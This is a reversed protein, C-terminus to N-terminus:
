NKQASENETYDVIKKANFAKIDFDLVSEINQIYDIHYFCADRNNMYLSTTSTTSINNTRSIRLGFEKNEAKTGSHFEIVTKQSIHKQADLWQKFWGHRELTMQPTYLTVSSWINPLEPHHEKVHVSQGDWNIERLRGQEWLILTFNEIGNFDYNKTALYPSHEQFLEPLVMGRSKKYPPAPIHKNFAGNLLVGADGMENTIFWTGGAKTDKPFALSRKNVNYFEPYLAIGRSIHEDRNSTLIIGNKLPIFSVTCM